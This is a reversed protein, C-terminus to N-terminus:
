DFSSWRLDELDAGIQQLEDTIGHVTKTLTDIKKMNAEAETKTSQYAESLSDYSEFAKELDERLKIQRELFAEIKEIGSVAFDLLTKTPEYMNSEPVLTELMSSASVKSKELAPLMETFRNQVAEIVGSLENAAGYQPIEVAEVGAVFEETLAENLTDVDVRLSSDYEPAAAELVDMDEKLANLKDALRRKEDRYKKVDANLNQFVPLFRSTYAARDEVSIDSERAEDPSAESIEKESDVNVQAQPTESQSAVPASLGSSDDTEPIVRDVTAVSAHADAEIPAQVFPQGVTAVPAQVDAEVPARTDPPDVANDPVAADSAYAPPSALEASSSVDTATVQNGAYAPSEYPNEMKRVPVESIRAPAKNHFETAADNDWGEDKSKWNFISM